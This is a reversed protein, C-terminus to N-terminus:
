RAFSKECQDCVIRPGAAARTAEAEVLASHARTTRAHREADFQRSFVEECGTQQKLPCHFTRLPQQHGSPVPSGGVSQARDTSSSPSSQQVAHAALAGQAFPVIPATGIPGARQADPQMPFDHFSSPPGLHGQDTPAALPLLTRWTMSGRSLALQELIHALTGTDLSL